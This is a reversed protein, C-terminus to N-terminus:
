RNMQKLFSSILLCLDSVDICGSWQWVCSFLMFGKGAAVLAGLVELVRDWQLRYDCWAASVSQMVAPGM